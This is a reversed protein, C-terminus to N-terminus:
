PWIRIRAKNFSGIPVRVIRGRVFRGQSLGDGLNEYRLTELANHEMSLVVWQVFRGLGNQSLGDRFEPVSQGDRYKSSSLNKLHCFM